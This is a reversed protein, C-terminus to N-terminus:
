SRVGVIRLNREYEERTIGHIMFFVYDKCFEVIEREESDAPEMKAISQALKFALGDNGGASANLFTQYLEKIGM